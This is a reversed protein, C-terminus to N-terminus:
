FIALLTNDSQLRFYQSHYDVLIVMMPLFVGEVRKFRQM